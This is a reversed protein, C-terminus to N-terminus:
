NHKFNVAKLFATISFMESSMVNYHRQYKQVAVTVTAVRTGAVTPTVRVGPGVAPGAVSVSM